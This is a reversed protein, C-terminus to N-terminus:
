LECLSARCAAVMAHEECRLQADRRAMQRLSEQEMRISQQLAQMEKHAQVQKEAQVEKDLLAQRRAKLEQENKKHAQQQRLHKKAGAIRGFESLLQQRRM